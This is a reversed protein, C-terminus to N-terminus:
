DDVEFSTAASCQSGTMFFFESASVEQKVKAKPNECRSRACNVSEGTQPLLM